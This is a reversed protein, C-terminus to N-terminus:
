RPGSSPRVGQGSFKRMGLNLATGTVFSILFGIPVYWPWFVKGAYSVVLVGTISALVGALAAKDNFKKFLVGQIFIGLMGGYTISAISLGLEVLPSRTDRLLTALGIMILSWALSIIRSIRLKQRDTLSRGPLM